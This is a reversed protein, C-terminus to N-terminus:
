ASAREKRNGDRVQRAIDAAIEAPNHAAYEWAASLGQNTLSPYAELLQADTLGTERLRWLVWVPIRTNGVCASGGCVGATKRIVPPEAAYDSSVVELPIEAAAAVLSTISIVGAPSPATALQSLRIYQEQGPKSRLEKAAERTLFWAHIIRGEEAPHARGRSGPHVVVVALHTMPSHESRLGDLNSDKCHIVSAKGGAPTRNLKSRVEIRVDDETRPWLPSHEDAGAARLVDKLAAPRARVDFCRHSDGLKKGRFVQAIFIEGYQAASLQYTRFYDRHTLFAM